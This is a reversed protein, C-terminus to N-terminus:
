RLRGDSTSRQTCAGNVESADVDKGGEGILTISGAPDATHNMAVYMFGCRDCRHAAITTFRGGWGGLATLHHAGM